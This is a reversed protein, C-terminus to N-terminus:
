VNSVNERSSIFPTGNLHEPFLGYPHRQPLNTGHRPLAGPVAESVHHNGFGRQYEYPDDDDHASRSDPLSAAVTKKPQMDQIFM